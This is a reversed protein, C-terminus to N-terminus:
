TQANQAGQDRELVLARLIARAEGGLEGEFLAALDDFALQSGNVKDILLRYFGSDTVELGFVERTLTGVNEGFTKETPRIATSLVGARYLKWVCSAPVEQLVVPSHTAIVAVGNRQILLDALARVFASLLPPHLHVEPEDLLIVTAEDVVEVLRTITLLVIKHGSSLQGFFREIEGTPDDGQVELLSAANAEDFLPDSTLADVATRWREARPGQRCSEFSARFDRTLRQPLSLQENENASGHLGIQHARIATNTAPPLIFEDFASFSVYVLGAFTWENRNTGTHTIYGIHEAPGSHLIASALAQMCRTKGVGNRGILVHVNSPPTSFPTVAFTLTPVPPRTGDVTVIQPLTYNFQFATLIANGHALRSFRYRVQVSSVDRLLSESMVDENINDEFISLDYACDRLSILIEARWQPGLQDLAEYYTENQGLSFFDSGLREFVEPLAPTRRGPGPTGSPELDKQGFKVAGIHHEEGNADVV